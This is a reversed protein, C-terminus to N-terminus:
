RRDRKKVLGIANGVTVNMLEEHLYKTLIDATIRGFNDLLDILLVQLADYLEEPKATQFRDLANTFHIGDVDSTLESLISHREKCELLTRDVVASITVGSLTLLGRQRIAQIAKIMLRTREAQPLGVHKLKWAAVKEAHIQNRQRGM